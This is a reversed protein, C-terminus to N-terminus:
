GGVKKYKPSLNFYGVGLIVSTAIVIVKSEIIYILIAPLLMIIILTIFQVRYVSSVMELNSSCKNCQIIQPSNVLKM